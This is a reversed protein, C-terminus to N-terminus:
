PKLIMPQSTQKGILGMTVDLFDVRNLNVELRIKLKNKKLVYIDKKILVKKM